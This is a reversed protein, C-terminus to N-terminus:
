LDYEKVLTASINYTYDNGSTTNLTTTYNSVTFQVESSELPPTWEILSVGKTNDFLNALATAEAQTLCSWSVNYTLSINNFGKAARISYNDTKFREVEFQGERQPGSVELKDTSLLAVM